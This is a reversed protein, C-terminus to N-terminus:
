QILAHIILTASEGPELTGDRLSLACAGGGCPTGPAPASLQPSGLGTVSWGHFELHPDLPSSWEMHTATAADPANSLTYRYAICAGPIKRGTDPVGEDFGGGRAASFDGCFEGEDSVTRLDAVLSVAADGVSVRSSASHAGDGEGDKHTGAGDRFVPPGPRAASQHTDGPGTRNDARTSAFDSRAMLLTRFSEGSALTQGVALEVRVVIRATADARLEVRGDPLESLTGDVDQYLRVSAIGIAPLDVEPLLTFGDTGNGTNSVTFAVDVTGGDAPLVAEGDGSVTVDVVRGVRFAQELVSETVTEAGGSRYSFSAAVSIQTDVHTGAAQATGSALLIALGTTQLRSVLRSPRRRAPTDTTATARNM